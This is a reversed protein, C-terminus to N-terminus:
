GIGLKKQYEAFEQDDMQAVKEDTMPDEPIEKTSSGRVFDVAAQRDSDATSVQEKPQFHSKFDEVLKAEVKKWGQPNVTKETYAKNLTPNRQARENLWAGIFEPTVDFPLDSLQGHLSNVTKEYEYKATVKAEVQAVIDDVSTAPAQAPQAPEGSEWENLISDLDDQKSTEEAAPEASADPEPKVTEM